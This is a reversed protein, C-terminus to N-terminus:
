LCGPGAGERSSSVGFQSWWAFAAPAGRKTTPGYSQGFSVGSFRLRCSSSPRAISENCAEPIMASLHACWSM